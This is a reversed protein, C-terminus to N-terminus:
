LNYLIDKKYILLYKKYKCRTDNAQELFLKSHTFGITCNKGNMNLLTSVNTMEWVGTVICKKLLQEIASPEKLEKPSIPSAKAKTLFNNYVWTHITEHTYSVM